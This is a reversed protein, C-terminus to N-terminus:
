TKPVWVWEGNNCVWDGNPTPHTTPKPDSCGGGVNPHVNILRLTSNAHLWNDIEKIEDEPMAKLAEAIEKTNM